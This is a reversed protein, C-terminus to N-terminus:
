DYRFVRKERHEIRLGRESGPWADLVEVSIGFLLSTNVKSFLLSISRPSERKM